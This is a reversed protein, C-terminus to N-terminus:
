QRKLELVYCMTHTFIYLFGDLLADVTNLDHCVPMPTRELYKYGKQSSSNSTLRIDIDIQTSLIHLCFFYLGISTSCHM